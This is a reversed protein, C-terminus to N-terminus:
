GKLIASGMGMAIVSHIFLFRMILATIIMLNVESYDIEDGDGCGASFFSGCFMTAALALAAARKGLKFKKM